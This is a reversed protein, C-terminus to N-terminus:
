PCAGWTNLLTTLDEFGVAGSCDTDEPCGDCTGWNNLLSSLDAFGVSGDDNVDAPCAFTWTLNDFIPDGNGLATPTYFRIEDFTSCPDGTITVWEGFSNNTWKPLTVVTTGVFSGDVFMDVNIGGALGTYPGNSSYAQLNIAEVQNTFEIGTMNFLDNPDNSHRVEIDPGDAAWWNAYLAPIRTQVFAIEQIAFVEFIGPSTWGGSEFDESGSTFVTQTDSQTLGFTGAMAISSMATVALASIIVKM